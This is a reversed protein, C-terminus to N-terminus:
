VEKSDLYIKMLSIFLEDKQNQLLEESNFIFKARDLFDIIETPKYEGLFFSIDVELYQCLKNLKELSLCRRGHELNSIQAKTINLIKALDTQKLGRAKRILKIKNGLDKNM